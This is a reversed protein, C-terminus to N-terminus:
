GVSGRPIGLRKKESKIGLATVVVEGIEGREEQLVVNITTRGNVAIEQKEYGIFSFLLVADPAVELTFQGDNDTVTGGSSSQIL